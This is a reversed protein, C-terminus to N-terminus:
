PLTAIKDLIGNIFSSSDETGYRKAIEIAENLTVKRPVEELWRLEFTAMRLINRDVMAMRELKWNRSAQQILDDIEDEHSRVGRVLIEAFERIEDNIQKEDPFSRWYDRVLTDEADDQTVAHDLNYLLQLACERAKRRNGM